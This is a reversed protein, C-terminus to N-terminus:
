IEPTDDAFCWGEEILADATRGYHGQLKWAMGTNILLQFFAVEEEFSEMEGSEYDMIGQVIDNAVESASM